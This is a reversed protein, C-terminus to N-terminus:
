LTQLGFTGRGYSARPLASYLNSTFMTFTTFMNFKIIEQWNKKDEHKYVHYVHQPSYVLKTILDKPFKTKFQKEIGIQVFFFEAVCHRKDERKYVDHLYMWRLCVSVDHRYM